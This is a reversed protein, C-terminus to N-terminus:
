PIQAESARQVDGADSVSYGSLDYANEGVLYVDALSLSAGPNEFDELTAYSFSNFCLQLLMVGYLVMKNFVKM